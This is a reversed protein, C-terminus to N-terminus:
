ASVVRSLVCEPIGESAAISFCFVFFLYASFMARASVCESNLICGFLLYM